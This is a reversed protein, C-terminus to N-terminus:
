VKAKDKSDKVGKPAQADVKSAAGAKVPNVKHSVYYNSYSKSYYHSYYYNTQTGSINNLVVGLIPVNSERLKKLCLGATKRKVTNFRIVYTIGDVNHLLNLADSVPALPPSDIFIRDYRQRLEHLIEDFNNSCLIHPPNNTSGGTPLVDFNQEVNRQIVEDLKHQGSLVTMFGKSNELQLSKAVNPMRFDGDLILVKEGRAAYTLAINTTVFSKGESPISSTVLIIKANRGEDRLQLTSHISRFAEVTPQHIGTAVIRSRQQPASKEIRPIVGIINTLLGKEIDFVSKVKDDMFILLFIIGTGIAAGLIVSVVMNLVVNPSSPRIPPTAVDVIRATESDDSSMAMTQQKRSYLYDYHNRAGDLDRKLREYEPRIKELEIRESQKDEIRKVASAYNNQANVLRNRVGEVVNEVTSNLQKEIELKQQLVEIMKPHKARYVQSLTALQINVDTLRMLLPPIRQDQAIVPVEWLDRGSDRAREVLEWMSTAEDLIRKDDTAFETLRMLQQQNIDTGVDFSNTQYKEKMKVMQVELENVKRAQVNIQEQLEDVARMAAEVNKSRKYGIYEEAFLNAIKAALDRNPHSYEIYVMLTMRKPFVNRNEILVQVPNVVMGDFSKQSAYPALLERREADKLRRDVNQAITVGEIISIETNFDADNRVNSDSVENFEVTRNQQRLIQLSSTAKYIPTANMSYFGMAVISVFLAIFLWWIRERFMAIYDALSRGTDGGENDYYYGSAGGDGYYSAKRTDGYSYQTGGENSNSGRGM